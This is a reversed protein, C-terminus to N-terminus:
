QSVQRIWDALNYYVSVRSVLGNRVEFFSGVPLRYVQGKAEPFGASGKLYKGTVLFETAARGPNGPSTFVVLDDIKEDYYKFGEEMFSSFHAKGVRREGQNADHIIDNDILALFTPLDKRNFADYYKCILEYTTM